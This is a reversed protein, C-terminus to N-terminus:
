SSTVAARLTAASIMFHIFGFVGDYVNWSPSRTQNSPVLMHVVGWLLVQQLVGYGM